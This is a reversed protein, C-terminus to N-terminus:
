RWLKLDEAGGPDARKQYKIDDGCRAASSFLPVRFNLMIM